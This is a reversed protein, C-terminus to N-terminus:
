GETTGPLLQPSPQDGLILKSLYRLYMCKLDPNARENPSYSVLTTSISASLIIEMSGLREWINDTGDYPPISGMVASEESAKDASPPSLLYVVEPKHTIADLATWIEQPCGIFHGSLNLTKMNKLRESRLIQLITGMSLQRFPYLDVHDSQEFLRSLLEAITDQHEFAVLEDVRAACITLFSKPFGRFMMPENLLDLDDLLNSLIADLVKDRAHESLSRPGRRPPEHYVSVTDQETYADLQGSSKWARSPWCGIYLGHDTVNYKGNIADPTLHQM